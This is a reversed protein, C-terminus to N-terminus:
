ITLNSDPLPRIEIYTKDRVDQEKKIKETKKFYDENIPQKHMNSKEVKLLHERYLNYELLM